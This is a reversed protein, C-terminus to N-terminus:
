GVWDTECTSIGSMQAAMATSQVAMLYETKSRSEDSYQDMDCCNVCVFIVVPAETLRAYSRAVDDEISNPVDGDATRDERLRQGMATALKDKSERDDLVVFRWPQRNHASPAQTAAILIREIVSEDIPGPLYRRISRRQGIVSRLKVETTM